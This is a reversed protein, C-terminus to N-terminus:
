DGLTSLIIHAQLAAVTGPYDWILKWLRRRATKYKGPDHCQWATTRTKSNLRGYRVSVMPLHFSYRSTRALFETFVSLRNM